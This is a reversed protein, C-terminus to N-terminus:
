HGQSIEWTVAQLGAQLAGDVNKESDDVFLITSPEAGILRAAATFFRPNPKAFGLEYSYCSTDFLEDYGLTARMHSGRHREQNTGLHVGYGAARLRQVIALSAGDLEIRHWVDRFVTSVPASVGFEILRSALMPMYDGDGALTPLEDSWTAHLFTRARDGLYPEIAAYWGGPVTQLVDDADFLVHEITSSCRSEHIPASSGENRTGM